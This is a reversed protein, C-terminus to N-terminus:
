SYNCLVPFPACEICDTDIVTSQVSVMFLSITAKSYESTYQAKLPVGNAAVSFFAM